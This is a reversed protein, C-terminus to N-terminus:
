SGVLAVGSTASYALVNLWFVAVLGLGGLLILAFGGTRGRYGLAFAAAFVLIPFAVAFGLVGWGLGNLGLLGTAQTLLHGVAVWVAYAYFLGFAGAVVATLWTPRRTPSAADMSM